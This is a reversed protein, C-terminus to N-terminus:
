YGATQYFSNNKEKESSIYGLDNLDRATADRWYSDAIKDVPARNNEHDPYTHIKVCQVQLALKDRGFWTPNCACRVKGTLEERSKWFFM